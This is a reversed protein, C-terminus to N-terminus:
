EGKKNQRKKRDTAIERKCQLNLIKNIKKIIDQIIWIETQFENYLLVDNECDFRFSHFKKRLKMLMEITNDIDNYVGYKISNVMLEDFCQKNEDNM